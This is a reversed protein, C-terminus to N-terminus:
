MKMKPQYLQHKNYDQNLTIQKAKRLTLFTLGAFVILKIITITEFDM